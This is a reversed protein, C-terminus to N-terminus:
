FSLPGVDDILDRMRHKVSRPLINLDAGGTDPGDEQVDRCGAQSAVRKSLFAECNVHQFQSPAFAPFLQPSVSTCDDM